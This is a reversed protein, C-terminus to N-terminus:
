ILIRLLVLCELSYKEIINKNMLIGKYFKKHRLLTVDIDFNTNNFALYLVGFVIEKAKELKKRAYM